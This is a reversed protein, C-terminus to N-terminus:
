SIPQHKIGHKLAGGKGFNTANELVIANTNKRLEAFVDYFENGSGDDVIVIKQSKDSKLENVLNIINPTPRYAPILVARQLTHQSAITSM